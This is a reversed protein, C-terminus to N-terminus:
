KLNALVALSPYCSKKNVFKTFNSRYINSFITVNLLIYTVGLLICNFLEFFMFFMVRDSNTSPTAVTLAPDIEDEIDEEPDEEPYDFTREEPCPAEVGM